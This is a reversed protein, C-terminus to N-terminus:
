NRWTLRCVRRAVGVDADLTEVDADFTARLEAAIEDFFRPATIVVYDIKRARVEDPHRITVHSGPAYLGHKTPAKDVLIYDLGAPLHMLVPLIPNSAGWLAVSRGATSAEKVFNALSRTTSAVWDNVLVHLGAGRARVYM